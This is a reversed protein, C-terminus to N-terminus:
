RPGSPSRSSSAGPPTSSTSGPGKGVYVGLAALSHDSYTVWDGVDQFRPSRLASSGACSRSRGADSGAGRRASCAGRRPHRHRGLGGDAVADVPGPRLLLELDARRPRRGRVGARRRARLRSLARHRDDAQREPPRRLRDARARRVGGADGGARRDPRGATRARVVRLRRWRSPSSRSRALQWSM